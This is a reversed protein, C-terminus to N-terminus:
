VFTAVPLKYVPRTEGNDFLATVVGDAGITLGAFTGFQSGNQTIFVPTFSGGFQTFGNAETATGIVDPQDARIRQVLDEDSTFDIHNLNLLSVSHGARKLVASLSGIGISIDYPLGKIAAKPMILSIKM